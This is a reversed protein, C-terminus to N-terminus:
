QLAVTVLGPRGHHACNRTSLARGLLKPGADALACAAREHATLWQCEFSRLMISTAFEQAAPAEGGLRLEGGVPAVAALVSSVYWCHQAILAHRHQRVHMSPLSEIRVLCLNARPSAGRQHHQDDRTCHATMRGRWGSRSSRWRRWMPTTRQPQLGGVSSM